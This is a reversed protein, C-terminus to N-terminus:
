SLLRIKVDGSILKAREGDEYKVKLCLQKSLGIVKANRSNGLGDTVTIPTNKLISNKRYIKKLASTKKLCLAPVLKGLILPLLDGPLIRAGTMDEVSSAISALERPFDRHLLNIGIGIIYAGNGNENVRESLIGCIKRDRIFLDNVWKIFLGDAKMSLLEKLAYVAAAAAATTVEAPSLPEKDIPILLSFYLGGCGSDFSRGRTGRGSTQRQAVFIKPSAAGESMFFERARDNTSDTLEYFFVDQKQLGINAFFSEKALFSFM